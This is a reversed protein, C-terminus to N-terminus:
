INFQLYIQAITYKVSKLYILCCFFFFFFLLSLRYSSDDRWGHCCAMLPLLVQVDFTYSTCCVKFDSFLSLIFLFSMACANCLLFKNRWVFTIWIEEFKFYIEICNWVDISMSVKQVFGSVTFFKERVKLGSTELRGVLYLSGSVIDRKFTGDSASSSEIVCNTCCYATTIPLGLYGTSVMLSM